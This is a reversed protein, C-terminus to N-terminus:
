DGFGAYNWAAVIFDNAQSRTWKQATRFLYKLESVEGWEQCLDDTETNQYLYVLASEVDQTYTSNQFLNDPVNWVLCEILFGPINGQRINAEAMENSLAKLVRVISKYRM